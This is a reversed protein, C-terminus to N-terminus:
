RVYGNDRFWNAAKGLAEEIPTQPMGLERIAKSCDHFRVKRAARVADLQARPPRNMIVGELIDDIYAMGMAFWGPIRVRPAKVGVVKKLTDFIERLLLNQNGLIYREGIQGKQLALIHGKAVDEVSVINLGMDLYVPMAGRLLSVLVGGTPTPKVDFPGVPATPNVIVLPLGRRCMNLAVKEALFKSWKYHGKLHEPNIERAETGFDDNKGIGITSETSTYVVKKIDKEMAATLINKTGRVNTDYISQPNPTWFTYSAAIHFLAECDLLAERLSRKDRLDGEVMELPLGEVNRLNCGKRVLAKVQFEQKLLERAVNAGIFGTAGTVLVKM